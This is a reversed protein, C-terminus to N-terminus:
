SEGGARLAGVNRVDLSGQVGPQYPALYRGVSGALLLLGPRDHYNRIGRRVWLPMDPREPGSTFGAAAANPVRNSGSASAPRPCEPRPGGPPVGLAHSPQAEASLGGM